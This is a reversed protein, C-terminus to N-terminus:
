SRRLASELACLDKPLPATFTMERRQQPHRLSLSVAHLAQRPFTGRYHPNYLRDGVLPLGSHAAQVRIQHRRGTELRLRLKTVGHFEAVVEYHTVSEAAGPTDPAVVTQRSKADDWKLWHRWTGRPQQPKGEVFAIYERQMAHTRVQEILHARASRNMAMCLLGSTQCDIRHVEMPQLRRYPAPLSPLAAALIELASIDGEPAPVSLIGAAKNVVALAGDLHLLTVQDHIPLGKPGCDLSVADRDLLVLAAGPDPMEMHPQRIVVGGVSVRGAMIWQKARTRPTDPYRILLWDLLTKM